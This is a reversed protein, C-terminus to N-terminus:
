PLALARLIAQNTLEFDEELLSHGVGEVIELSGGSPGAAIERARELPMALDSDGARATVRARILALRARLDEVAAAAELETALVATPIVGLASRMANVAAPHSEAYAPAFMTPAAVGVDGGSRALAALQKLGERHAPELAAYGALTVVHSVEVEASLALLLARYGGGSFGVVKLNKVDLAALDALLLDVTEAITYPRELPASRGYGPMSPVLVRHSTRLSARLSDFVNAGPVLGHLLLLNPGTGEIIFDHRMAEGPEM